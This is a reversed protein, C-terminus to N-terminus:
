SSGAAAAAAKDAGVSGAAAAADGSAKVTVHKLLLDVLESKEICSSYDIRRQALAQKLEAVKLAAVDERTLKSFDVKAEEDKAQRVLGKLVSEFEEEMPHGSYYIDGDKIVFAHPIGRVSFQSKIPSLINKTDTATSYEAVLSSIQSASLDENTVGVIKVSPLNKAIENLHPISM